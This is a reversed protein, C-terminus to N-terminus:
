RVLNVSGKRVIREGNNKTIEAVFMYVGSPQEKGGQTGNWGTMLNSSEFVKEGWQNFVMVKITRIVNSYGKWVDNKGDGNPSFANPFYIEDTRTQGSVPASVSPLCGGLARVQLTVTAGLQLGSVVHTLGTTGSSPITWTSGGNTTVEYGTANPVAAWRFYVTNTTVSDVIAVPTALVPRIAATARDRISSWCGNALAQLYINTPGTVNNLVYTNGTSLTTGGSAASYWSYQTGAVPNNVTFTAASGSCVFVTDQLIDPIPRANITVSKTTDGVCGDTSVARLNVSYTGATAYVKNPSQLNSSTNDGFTYAWSTVTAGTYPTSLGTFTVADGQCFTANVLFNTLPAPRVDIQLSLELSGGCGEINPDYITVPVNVTGTQSFIYDQALVYTYYKKGAVVSSDTPVPNNQTVDLSPTVGPVRSMNWVIKTPRATLVMKLRFPAGKCTYSSSTAANLVNSFSITASLNRVLTGANYGYSEVSGLGYTIATFASDSTVTHQGAGGGLNHRVCTYGALGPHPFTHTFTNSGDILLSSLGATPIVINVYNSTIASKNTNYFQVSKIGQEIPSIYMMEPDGNGSATVGPCENASTSVMYQAMMVPKDAEVYVASGNGAGEPTSFEYFNGPTRLSAISLLTGNLRVQTTPDKVMVRYINSNYLTGSTSNASAFTLYKQGWATRPFVQQIFNDGNSTYCIATRSSGSFVAIPYCRGSANAISRVVTGTMDTGASGNTTGMVNYVQGRNLYVQFPVGAARGGRTTVSPTIEVLTSDRDAIVMTWSYTDSSYYQKYNLSTYEYGYAGVPLLMGAGSNAGDYIHAYAVIPKDSTISIGRNFLGENLIRADVFGAKPIEDSVKVSNAPIAYTRSWNTGNIRVTVNSSDTASLYLLMSQSNSSFGQHHGYAVWFRTGRNSTDTMFSPAVTTASPPIVGDTSGTFRGLFNLSGETLTNDFTEALSNASVFWTGAPVTRALKAAREDGIDRLWPDYYFQKMTFNSPASGSSRVDNYYYMSKQGTALAPPIVGSYRQVKIDSPVTSGSAWNIIQVTDTGFFFVQRTGAAPIAPTGSLVPPQVTPFFEYAGLDPVGAALTTPRPNGNIDRDNGELQEGRGHMAWVTSDTLVPQLFNGAVAPKIMISNYDWFEADKWAQLTAYGTTNKRMLTSGASYVLNFDSYIPGTSSHQYAIGNADHFFVNNRIDVPGESASTHAFAGAINTTVTSGTSASRITNNHIKLAGSGSTSYFAYSSAGSTRTNIVNNRIVGNSNSSGYLGYQTGTSLATSLVRNGSMSGDYNTGNMSTAYLGYTFASMAGINVENGDVRYASDLNSIYIGYNTSTNRPTALTVRNKSVSSFQMNLVSINRTFSGTVTNSDISVYQPYISTSGTMNVTFDGGSVTNGKIVVNRGTLGASFIAAKATSTATTAPTTIICNLISDYSASNEIVVTRGNTTSQANITIGRVTIYSASDLMLVYNATAPATAQLNVSAPNGNASQFTIRNVNSTGTIRKILVQENYTGAVVNFTVPASIGCQLVAVAANFSNFNTGTPYTTPQANNITYTGGPFPPNMSVQVSTSTASQGSCTVVCRYFGSGSAEITTDAFLLPNGVNTWPGAVASAFQWQYTQGSGFSEGNLDLAIPTGICFNVNPTATATGAMPPTTCPPVTFEWAGPDPTSANRVAGTIDTTIGAVPTGKNDIVPTRPRLDGTSPSTFLPNGFVSNADGSSATQWAALTTRNSGNYGVHANSGDLYFANHNSSISHSSLMYIGYKVGTGARRINFINNRLEVGTSTSSHYFGYTGTSVAQSTTIDVTNHDIRTNDAGSNYIGYFTGLGNMNYIANNAIINPNNADGDSGSLYIPYAASTSTPVGGFPNHFRNGIVKLGPNVGWAYVAYFTTVATRTPRTFENGEVLTNNAYYLDVGDIYYDQFSNGIIRNNTVPTAAAGYISLALYGGSVTNGQFLNFDTGADGTSTASPGTSLVIGAYNTSTQTKDIEIRCKRFVNSDASNRLHVGFGFETSTAGLAVIRLSDFIQHDTGNLKITAREDTNTSLYQITNGNGNWTVTNTASSGQIPDMILQEVYPGSGPVVNFVIPGSIGCRLAYYADSFSAFNTGGTPQAKNITYNGGAFFANVMVQLVTSYATQGTCTVACRYFTSASPNVTIGPTNLVGGVNTWPGTASASSQWQYTQGTGFTNGSLGLTVAENPCVPGSISSTSTGPTPPAECGEVDFEWAGIDPTTANRPLGLIDTSIGVSTGLNNVASALPKLNGTALSSYNPSVSVSNADQSANTQWASLTTRNAGNYGVHSNAGSVFINNRNSLLSTAVAASSVHIAFNSGAGARRVTVINNRFQTLVTNATFTGLMYFGRATISSAPTSGADDISITNHDINLNDSSSNSIGYINGNGGINYLANNFVRNEFGALADCSSFYIGYFTGTSTPAFDFMNHIRNGEVRLKTSLGTYYVAYNTTSASGKRNDRYMDNGQFLHEFTGSAYLGYYYFDRVRNGIFQNRQNANGTPSGMDTIGYYGGIIDNNIFRNFDCNANGTTTAGTASSSIVIGAYNSSTLSDNSRIISRRFINSDADNTLHVGWGYVSTTTGTAHITLSDFIFHDAGNLGIVARQGSAASTFRITRGNGNFTITNTASSGNIRSILLQETYPGSAPDVNFVVPGNIGCKIYNYADNFSNFNTGGTPQNNNITFTGSVLSPSVVQVSTSNVTQGSSTCTIVCRYWTSVTQSTTLSSVTAGPIDIWTSNNSSRQWKYTLGSAITAGNLTLSFDDGACVMNSSPVATGGAPTGTCAVAPTWAFIINPRTTQTGTNTSTATGCLSGLNDARYTHSANFSLGTTWPITPNGTFDSPGGNCVEIMINDTGNWNFGGPLTFTNNGLIPQYNAPTTAVTPGSFVDWATTQLSTAATHGIRVQLGEIIGANNMVTINWRIASIVGANMGAANLESARFLYQARAGEYYGQIPVPYTTNANGVTGTGIAIDTQARLVPIVLIMLMALTLAKPCFANRTIKRMITSKHIPFSPLQLSFAEGKHLQIAVGSRKLITPKSVM